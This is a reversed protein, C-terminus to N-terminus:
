LSMPDLSEAGPLGKDALWNSVFNAFLSRVAEGAATLPAHKSKVVSAVLYIPPEIITAQIGEYGPVDSLDGKPVVANGVGSLVAALMGYFSDAEAV